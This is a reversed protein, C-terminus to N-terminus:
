VGQKKRGGALLRQLVSMVRAQKLFLGDQPTGPTLPTALGLCHEEQTATAERCSPVLLAMCSPATRWAGLVSAVAELSGMEGWM